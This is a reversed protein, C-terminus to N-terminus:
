SKVEVTFFTKEALYVKIAGDGSEVPEPVEALMRQCEAVWEGLTYDALRTFGGEFVTSSFLQGAKGGSLYFYGYQPNYWFDVGPVNLAKTVQKCSRPAKSLDPKRMGTTYTKLSLSDLEFLHSLPPQRGARLVPLLVPGQGGPLCPPM